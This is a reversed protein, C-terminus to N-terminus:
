KEGEPETTEQPTVLDNIKKAVEKAVCIQEEAEVFESIMSQIIFKIAREFNEPNDVSYSNRNDTESDTVYIRENTIVFKYSKKITSGILFQGCKSCFQADETNSVYGGCSPCEGLTDNPKSILFKRPTDRLEFNYLAEVATKLLNSASVERDITEQNADVANANLTIIGTADYKMTLRKAM